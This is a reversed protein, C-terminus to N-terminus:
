DWEEALAPSPLMGADGVLKLEAILQDLRRSTDRMYEYMHKHMFAFTVAERLAAPRKLAAEFIMSLTFWARRPSARLICTWLIRRLLHVDSYGAFLKSQLSEGKHLVLAMARQRFNRYGYLRQLLWKYGEYLELRSMGEPVINTFVFQDGVSEAILRGADKLRAYLPTKPVANLMGTMSIPIRAEQIFRFQEEFITADDHDFGVIMGAMVEIGASQVRHVATLLDERMNQTKHTEQLSERRPSEIGIFISTFHAEKMMHLL